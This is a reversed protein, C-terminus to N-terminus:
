GVVRVTALVASEGGKPIGPRNDSVGITANNADEGATGALFVRGIHRIRRWVVPNVLTDFLCKGIGLEARDRGLDHCLYVIVHPVSALHDREKTGQKWRHV